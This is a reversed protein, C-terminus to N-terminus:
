EAGRNLISGAVFLVFALGLPWQYREIPVRAQTQRELGDGAHNLLADLAREGFPNQLMTGGTSAAIERLVEARAYTTVVEGGDRLPGFQTLITSGEATGIMVTSVATGRQKARQIAEAVRDGQDEGDSIVVIDAKQAPDAEILRLAGLIANGIDSGAMGVEGTQLTDLLAVVAETDTTLPSVVDPAGEFVVVAVRGPQAEALRKGIAKAGSLRSTGVDEAGMSNSVDIVLVRNSERATIPILTFGAYPGALALFSAAAAVAMIWPRLTRLPMTVGRLHESAFRRALRTRLRERAFLFVFAPPVLALLWLMTMSRFSM